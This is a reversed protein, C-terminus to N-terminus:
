HVLSAKDDSVVQADKAAAAILQHLQEVEQMGSVRKGNIFLTPTAEVKSTSALNLDRLVLGLSMQNDLCSEFTATDLGQITRAFNSLKKEINDTTITEQNQFIQDHMAWFVHSNQLQACAAGEAALRAWPHTALPMHHFILRVQGGEAALVQSMSKALKRCYPCEFDSFEVITVPADDPGKSAGRNQVLGTMLAQNKRQEEKTPDLATDLLDSTLFRKDPSLYMTLQWSKVASRGEFTLEWYCTTGVLKEKVLKIETSNGLKYEKRLYEVLATKKSTSLAPCDQGATLCRVAASATVLCLSISRTLM